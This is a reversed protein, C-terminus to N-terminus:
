RIVVKFKEQETLLLYIGAKLKINTEKAQTYEAVLVGQLNYLKIKSKLIGDWYITNGIQKWTEQHRNQTNSVVMSEGSIIINDFRITGNTAYNSTPNTAIYKSKNITDFCSVIRITFSPNNNASDLNSFDFSRLYWKDAGNVTTYYKAIQWNIEDVCYQLVQTNAAGNSHRADFTIKIDKYGQTSLQIELGASKSNSSASPYATTQFGFTGSSTGNTGEETSSGYNIGASFNSSAGGITKITGNGTTANTSQAEFNWYALTTQAYCACNTGVLTLLLSLILRRKRM